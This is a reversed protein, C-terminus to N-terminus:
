VAAVDFSVCWLVKASIEEPFWLGRGTSSDRFLTYKAQNGRERSWQGTETYSFLMVRDVDVVLVM